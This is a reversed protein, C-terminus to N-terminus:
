RDVFEGLQAVFPDDQELRQRLELARERWASMDIDQVKACLCLVRLTVRARHEPASAQTAALLHRLVLPLLRKRFRAVLGEADLEIGALEDQLSAAAKADGEALAIEAGLATVIAWDFEAGTDDPKRLAQLVFRAQAYAIHAGGTRGLALEAVAISAHGVGVERQKAANGPDGDLISQSLLLFRGFAERAGEQDGAALLAGGIRNYSVGLSRQWGANHPDQATLRESIALAKRFAELAGGLNGQAEFVGGISNHSVSLESQWEANDPDQATLRESIVLAKVFAELAGGLNGQAEFVGGISNHNVGLDRQSRANDPDLVALREAIAMAKRFAELAGAPNGQAEFVGGINIHILWLNRQWTANEPDQRALRELIALAKHLSERAGALNGQAQLIHGINNHKPVLAHQWKANSPDQAYLRELIGLGKRVADLAGALKGQADMVRAINNHSYSLELQWDTNNPYHAALREAIAMAKRFAEMAGALNGKALLVSGIKNHSVRLSRQWGANDPAHAALRESIALCKRFAELAGALNGQAELVGGIRSHSVNLNRQWKANDADQVALREAIAMAKRFAELAGALNGQAVLVSGIRNHSVSLDSKWGANDPDQAALREAIALAKRFAELAGKSSGIDSLLDGLHRMCNRSHELVAADGTNANFSRWGGEAAFEGPEIALALRRKEWYLSLDFAVRQMAAEDQVAKLLGWLTRAVFGKRNIGTDQVEKGPENDNEWLRLVEAALCQINVKAAYVGALPQRTADLMTLWSRLSSHSLRVTDWDENTEGEGPEIAIMTGLERLDQRVDQAERKTAGALVALPVPEPAALILELLPRTQSRYAIIDPFRRRFTQQYFPNLGAPLDVPNDPDCRGQRVEEVLLVAYHFAGESRDLIRELTHESPPRGIAALRERLFAALDDRQESDDGRIEIRQTGALWPVLEAEPRSSVMLRLWPPLRGWHAAVIEALSNEGGPQTAEDLGDLIVLMPAPPEPFGKALPGVLLTDFLTHADKHAERELELNSLRAAYLSMHQRQSLQYAISLIARAPNVKDQQGAVCFHMAAVEAWRHSLTAAVASKGLGPAATLWLVQSGQPDALWARLRAELQVRGKFSAVHRQLDGDFNLPQLYRILRQQGGEFDIKDEEIAECLRALRQMFREPKEAVPVADRWDLYQIRCISTPAGQPVEVLLVPIILKRLELAKAIENLCYGDPRRVSHPTMVLMMRDCWVLGQEIRQEWDLGTGLQEEDFWVEHGRARLADRLAVVEEVYDKRGYSLFLKLTRTPGQPVPAPVALPKSSAPNSGSSPAGGGGAQKAEEERLAHLLRKAHAMKLGLERLEAETLERISDLDEFGESRLVDEYAQLGHQTLWDTLNM